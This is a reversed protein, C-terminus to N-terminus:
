RSAIARVLESAMAAPNEIPATHTGEISRRVFEGAALDRWSEMTDEPVIPDAKASVIVIPIELRDLARGALELKYNQALLLDDSAVSLYDGLLEHNALLSDPLVGQFLPKLEHLPATLWTDTTASLRALGPTLPATPPLATAIVMKIPMTGARKQLRYATELTLWAGQSYGYLIVPVSAGAEASAASLVAAAVEDALVDMDTIAPEHKRGARGPLQIAILEVGEPLHEVLPLHASAAGGMGPFCFIRARLAGRPAPRLVQLWPTGPAILARTGNGGAGHARTQAFALLRELLGHRELDEVPADQITALAARVADVLAERTEVRTGNHRGAQSAAGAAGASATDAEPERLGVDRAPELELAELLHQGIGQCSGGRFIVETSVPLDTLGALQSRITVAMLSNMGLQQLPQEPPISEPPMALVVGVERQIMRILTDLREAESLPVLRERLAAPKQASAGARRLRRRLLTRWLAPPEAGQDVGRQLMLLDLKVAVLSAEPRALAADLLHLGEGVALPIIGQRRIQALDAKGLHATMGLGQQEWMSWAVSTAALGRARRYGALADLFVNAAAYNSQGPGGMTGSTSAYLVFAALKMDRTLEHLYLAGRVKPAMVRTFREATQGQVFGDDLVGGLHFVATLPAEPRVHRMVAELDERRSVDCALVRVSEAGAGELGRILEDVGRADPGRRSTLILHRIGHHRVLHGAVTQGLEGTGGVILATGRPDLKGPSTADEPAPARVMRPVLARDGQLVVEPEGDATIVRVLLEADVSGAGLDVLQFSREPRENGVSRVLGWLPARALGTIGDIPDDSPAGTRTGGGPAAAATISVEGRTVWVLRTRDLRPEALIRQVQALNEITCQETIEAVRTFFSGGASDVLNGTPRGTVDIVLLRPARAGRDLRALLADLDAVSEAGLDRALAGDGGLVLGDLASEGRSVRWPVLEVRYLHELGARESSTRLQDAHARRLELTGVRAVPEGATDSVLVRAHVHDAGEQVDLKVRVRLEASGTALLEVDSWSFPLLVSKSGAADAQETDTQEHNVDVRGVIGAHLAADLLAPHLGYQAATGAVDEPLAVRGYGVDGRRWLEVLGQFAPGYELGHQHVREYFGTLDVQEAGAVPWSRLEEFGEDDSDPLEDGLEGMAHQTWAAHRSSGEPQSYIGISRRGRDDPASVAVQLRLPKEETVILPEVLTLERVGGAGTVRAAALALELFGTGPVLVTGLAGHDILWPHEALSLRGAILHGEGDAMTTATTLWPHEAAELGMSRVDSVVKEPELWYRQCQFAYTPIAARRAGPFAPKWDVPYGHVHLTGLSRLLQAQSGQQKQLSGVVVGGAHRSGDTLQMALVPHPSVEVFTGYGDTLLQALTVDFRVTQRLNRCWYAGDLTEGAVRGGTVTSYLPIETPRPKLGALQNALAPLISEMQASHSAHDVNLKGCFPCAGRKGACCRGGRGMKLQALLRDLARADGSVVTERATNIVAVSLAGDYPELLARVEDAPRQIVAMEGQGSTGHLAQSRLAVLRAGDDLSLAGAVVAAAVEGKSHGVVAAPTVGLSRWVAALGVYMTFLAPQLGDVRDFPPLSDDDDGRLLSLVSGGIWPRLAADCAEAVQAFVPSEGLLARGMAPWQSGQGPFVFVLKGPTRARAKILARHSRGSALATLGEIADSPDAAMVAARVEFHKRHEAATYALDLMSQEPHGELWEAWRRAQAELAPESRASLLLPYTSAPQPSAEVTVPPAPAEELVAHANTGGMGFSSVGARRPAGGAAWPRLETNVYFLAPDFGIEPNPREFHLSPVLEKHYLCLAAKILGAVGAATDVHGINSKVSGLACPENREHGAFVQQLAQVEIPDGLATASGHAEVYAITDPSVGAVAQAEAIVRAQGEVSPATFGVKAAGDNNIASGRVVAYIRDGDRLADELRRLVVVGVGNGVVTGQARADFSRCRGDPSLVLGEQYLYGHKLPVTLTAGGVLAADSEGRLLSERALHLAVLSTSCATQITLAPGRLDLKHAVRTAFYDNRAGVMVRYFTAMDDPNGMQNAGLGTGGFVGIRGHFRSPVIGADEVAEWACELFLRHQPDIIEADGRSYDFFEADFLDAGELYGKARVYNDDLLLEESIGARRLEEDSFRTIADVGSRLNNWFTEIDPAGPFRGSIGVIAIASSAPGRTALDISINAPAAKGQLFAALSAVTPHRFLSSLPFERGLGDCLIRHVALAAMSTGGLEFFGQNRDIRDLEAIQLVEAWARIVLYEIDRGAEPEVRPRSAEDSGDMSAQGYVPDVGRRPTRDVMPLAPAADQGPPPLRLLAPRDVKKNPTHPLGDRAVFTTPVMYGPLRRILHEHLQREIKKSESAPYGGPVWYLCLRPDDAADQRVVAACERVADHESAVSEIEGLEIRHGRLKVQFDLRGCFELSGDRRYRVLDGTRYMRPQAQAPAPTDAGDSGTHRPAYPDLVFREQTLQPRGLYGRAVGLGGICLEGYSGRPVRRGNGDLVYLLNNLIPTGLAVEDGQVDWTSSWVTTETPGYMNTVAGEVLRVLKSALGRDLAEGGVLLRDLGRLLARGDADALLMRAMSPTCQLHTPAYPLYRSWDATRGEAIVVRYGRTLTWLLELGSIDFSLSTVALFTAGAGGGVREDMARCFNAFQGHELMVGKPKGTSGSTYIVYALQSPAIAVPLVPEDDVHDDVRGVVDELLLVEVGDHSLAAAISASSVIVRLGSDEIVLDLRAQPYDPDLPVYAGGAMWIALMAVPVDVSRPLHLGVLSENGLAGGVGLARLRRAVANARRMMARYTLERGDCVLAIANPTRAAQAMILGLTSAWTPPEAELTGSQQVLWALDKDGLIDLASIPRAPDALISALLREFNGVFRMAAPRDFIHGLYELEGHLGGFVPSLTLGVEFKSAGRVNAVVSESTLQAEAAASFIPGNEYIFAARFLPNEEGVRQGGAVRVVETLPVHQRELLGLVRSKMRTLLETFSPDSSLDCRLPLTNAFFGVSQDLDGIQRNALVTGIGFDYQNCYRALLVAFATVLVTYPTVGAREGLEEIAQRVRAPLSFYVSDGGDHDDASALEPLELRPMGALESELCALDSAFSGQALCRQEWRAYDGLQHAVPALEPASGARLRDYAAFLEDFVRALSLGDIITHHLTLCFLTDSEALDFVLCRFLPGAGLDFPALEERRTRQRLMDTQAEASVGAGAVSLNEHRLPVPLNDHVVQVLEGDRAELSTRLAEHREMLWALARELVAMDLSRAIRIKVAVHYRASGPRLKELFWLRRQGETAPHTARQEARVLSPLSSPPADTDAALVCSLLHEAISRPTPHDFALTTPLGVQARRVLRNRLEVAMLSDLGVNRLRDDLSVASADPLGLVGAVAEQVIAHVHALRQDAPLTALRAALSTGDSAQSSARRLRGRVITRFLAPVPGDDSGIHGLLLKIPVLAPEARSLALDLLHLGEEVSLAGIGRRRLRSLDAAGLHATMGLGAQTWLGWALSTAVLGHARRHVALADLFTNAAAYNSQGPAGITGAAGSFLVFAALNMDRTLQDLHLAGAVKPAMVRAFRGGDLDQLLGDDLVGALHFVATWPHAAEASALVESVQDRVSMDCAVIRVSEAGAERLRAELLAAGPADQGRRSTLVLHRIGHRAVLHLALAQGLEGTGGTILVSGETDLVSKEVDRAPTVEGALVRQLRPVLATGGRLAVEPEDSLAIIRELLAANEATDDPDIDLLRVSRAPYEGRTSRLLGVLPAHALDLDRAGQSRAVGAAARTVWILEAAELRPASLLRQLFTLAEVAAAQAAGPADNAGGGPGTGTADVVVRMPPAAGQDLQGLFADLADQGGVWSAGGLMDPVKGSGGLVVLRGDRGITRDLPRSAGGDVRIPTWEIRYLNEAQRRVAQLQAANARRLTLEGIRAVPDGAADAFVVSASAHDGNGPSIEISVRLETGGTAYLEVDSWLFPLLVSDADGAGASFALDILGAHLAADLLAPHVCYQDLNGHLAESLRVRGWARAGSQRLEILGQFAPGYALGRAHLRDYFGDLAVAEAGPVPWQRLGALAAQGDSTWHGRGETLTGTAHEIWPADMTALAAPRTDADDTGQAQSYIAVSRRGDEGAAAVHVQLRLVEGDSVILPEVLTLESVASLGLARGAALAMELLATGPVVITDLVVHDRLWRHDALALRGSLLYGGDALAVIAGLWPHGASEFGVSRVDGRTRPAELWYRQRQFAYTPLLVRRAGSHAFVAPWDVEHGHAHLAGLSRFMQALGGHHRQLSGAVVGHVDASGSTLPMALVPHPSVEVFVDHGDAILRELARDLRVTERLNRCWYAGDLSEGAMSSGVVTSYFPVQTPQPHLHAFARALDPLLSDMHASHSAYDVQVKRCFLDQGQLSALLADVADADGSVVTSSSTNVVAISLAEGYPAILERVHEVSREVVAMAGTGTVKRVAQSRLAVVQAGESLTLAGAVVAAAIEGQSHGVVADPELGLSRWTAALSVYMAFLLPQVVDVRDFPPLAEGGPPNSADETGAGRLLALVSWGTFPRLAADCAEMSAAFAPSQALLAQGMERWQSGQGPFVLVVKGRERAGATVVGVHDDGCALARLTEAAEAVSAAMVCARAAFHSRCVSLTYSLDLLSADPHAELWAALREAQAHLAARDHGSVLLPVSTSREVIATERAPAAAETSAAPAASPRTPAEELIVHANTGSIGFASVGARRPRGNRPWPRPEQLVSLGSGEWLIHPSLEEAHLSKPLREHQLALVMKIVGAVGAAAQTHGLNSKSSSLHVPTRSDRDAGFVEALAGAEIPDGLTTGTGHAEVADIDAPVLRSAALAERIVRQQAPGNPATLGQSRGDQNIASGRIVGLITDGDREAQSLRKLLLIGCGEAFGAGDARASFSKCRGDPALAKLRSFEIFFGANSIVTVGGALALDCEGQRLGACALHIAVLSSSCATDLSVAPGQLGLVYSVRGAVVSCANGTGQYGDLAEPQCRYEIAYDSAMTGLYVGTPSERLSMPPIGARELAEWATELVLRQQPDMAQAERPSIGFFGADFQEVGHLFGGERTYSKGVAEPDPDYIDLDRWREPLTEIADSGSALCEWYAEPTDIGGPLRCAMSIIAIPEVRQNELEENRQKLKLVAAMARRLRADNGDQGAAHADERADQNLTGEHAARNKVPSHEM